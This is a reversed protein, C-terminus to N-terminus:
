RPMKRMVLRRAGRKGCAQCTLRNRIYVNLTSLHVGPLQRPVVAKHGCDCEAIVEVYTPLSGWHSWIDVPIEEPERM